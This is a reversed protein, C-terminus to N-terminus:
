QSQEKELQKYFSTGDFLKSEMLRERALKRWQKSHPKMYIMSLAAGMNSVKERNDLAQQKVGESFAEFTAKIWEPHEKAVEYCIKQWDEVKM